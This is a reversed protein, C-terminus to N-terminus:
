RWAWKPHLLETQKSSPKTQYNNNIESNDCRWMVYSVCKNVNKCVNKTQYGFVDLCKEVLSNVEFSPFCNWTISNKNNIVPVWIKGWGKVAWQWVQPVSVQIWRYSKSRKFWLDSVNLQHKKYIQRWYCQKALVLKHTQQVEKENGWFHEHQM